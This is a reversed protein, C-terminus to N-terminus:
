GRSLYAPSQGPWSRGITHGVIVRAIQSKLTNKNKKGSFHSNDGTPRQVRSVTWASVGFLHGLVEPNPYLRLWVIRL